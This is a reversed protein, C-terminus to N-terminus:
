CPFALIRNEKKINKLTTIQFGVRLSFLLCLNVNRVFLSDTLPPFSDVKSPAPAPDAAPLSDPLRLPFPTGGAAPILNKGFEPLFVSRGEEGEPGRHQDELCSALCIFVPVKKMSSM